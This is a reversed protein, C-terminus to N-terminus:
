YKKERLVTVRPVMLFSSAINQYDHGLIPHWSRNFQSFDPPIDKFLITLGMLSPISYPLNLKDKVNAPLYSCLKMVTACIDDSVLIETVLCITKVGHAIVDEINHKADIV